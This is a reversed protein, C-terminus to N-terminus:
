AANEAKALAGEFSRNLRDALQEDGTTDGSELHDTVLLAAQRFFRMFGPSNPRLYANELTRRTASFFGHVTADAQPNSWASLSGPQGGDRVYAGSQYDPSCLTMAYDFAASINASRASIGIGAGGLLAGDGDRGDMGPIDTFALPKGSDSSTYNVYGFAYPVYVVDDATSMHDFCAIPNWTASDPHAVSRLLRLADLTESLEMATLFVANGGPSHDLGAAVTLVTCMVDTPVSPWAIFQGGKRIEQDLAIVEDFSRPAADTYRALLDPRYSAVQSAADIPLAWIGGGYRYSRWSPGLSDAEFTQIQEDTLLTSLDIMMGDRAAEGVFPHDYIILDYEAAPGDLRGEGFEWLSRRDWEIRLGPRTECYPEISAELPGWCRKHDWALGRLLISEAM